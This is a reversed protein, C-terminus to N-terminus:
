VIRKTPLTLHTYSVTGQGDIDGLQWAGTNGWDAPKTYTANTLTAGGKSTINKIGDYEYSLKLNLDPAQMDYYNGVVISCIENENHTTIESGVDLGDFSAISFGHHDPNLANTDDGLTGNVIETFTSSDENSSWSLAGGKHGLYAVFSKEGFIGGPVPTSITQGSSKVSTPDTRYRNNIETYGIAGLYELINVYFRPRDVNQM